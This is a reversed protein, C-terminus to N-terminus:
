FLSPWIYMDKFGKKFNTPGQAGENYLNVPLRVPTAKGANLNTFELTVTYCTRRIHDGRHVDERTTRESSRLVLKM